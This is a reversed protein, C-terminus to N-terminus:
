HFVFEPDAIADAATHDPVLLPKWIQDIVQPLIARIVIM